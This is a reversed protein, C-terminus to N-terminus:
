LSQSRTGGIGTVIRSWCRWPKTKLRCWGILMNFVACGAQPRRNCEIFEISNVGEADKFVLAEMTARTNNGAERAIQASWERAQQYQAPDMFQHILDDSLGIEVM